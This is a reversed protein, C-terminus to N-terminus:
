PGSGGTAAYVEFYDWGSVSSPTFTATWMAGGGHVWTDSDSDGNSGLGRYLAGMVTLTFSGTWSGTNSNIVMNVTLIAVDGNWPYVGILKGTVTYLNESQTVTIQGSELPNPGYVVDDQGNVVLADPGWFFQQDLGGASKFWEIESGGQMNQCTIANQSGTYLEIEIEQSGTSTAKYADVVFEADGHHGETAASTTALSLSHPLVSTCLV